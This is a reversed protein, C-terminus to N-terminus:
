VFAEVLDLGTDVVLEEIHVSVVVEVVAKPMQCMDICGAFRGEPCDVTKDQM